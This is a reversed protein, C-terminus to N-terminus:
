ILHITGGSVFSDFSEAREKLKLEAMREEMKRSLKRLRGEEAPIMRRQKDSGYKYTNIRENIKVKQADLHHQLMNLMLNIRDRDERMCDDSFNKFRIELLDRCQDFLEAVHPHNLLTRHALWDNGSMAAISVM